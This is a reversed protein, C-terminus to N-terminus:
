AAGATTQRHRNVARFIESDTHTYGLLHGDPAVVAFMTRQDVSDKGAPIRRISYGYMWLDIFNTIDAPREM